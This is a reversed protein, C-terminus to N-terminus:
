APSPNYERVDWCKLNAMFRADRWVMQDGRRPTATSRPAHEEDGESEFALRPPEDDM